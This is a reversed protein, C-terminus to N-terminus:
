ILNKWERLTSLVIIPDIIPHGAHRSAAQIVTTERVRLFPNTLKEESLTAPVAPHNHAILNEVQKKRDRIAPSDPEVLTAFQMNALTYEHASYVLTDPPLQALTDLAHLMDAATGEFIRGCGGNFLCDGSFLAHLAPVYYAMHDKTHGPTGIAYIDLAMDPFSICDKDSVPHTIQKVTSVHSGYVPAPYQELLASVGGTHDHHHHTILIARLTLDHQALYHIVQDPAGPDVVLATKGSIIIWIYNDKLALIPVISAM